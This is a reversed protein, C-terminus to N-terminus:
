RRRAKELEAEKRRHFEESPMNAWDLTGGVQGGGAGEAGASNRQAETNTRQALWQQRKTEERQHSWQMASEFTARPHTMLYTKVDDRDAQPFQEKLSAFGDKFAIEALLTGQQRVQQQLAATPDDEYSTEPEDYGPYEPQLHQQEAATLYEEVSEYGLAKAKQNAASWRENVEQFREYPVYQSQRQGAGNVDAQAEPSGVGGGETQPGVASGGEAPPSGALAETEFSMAQFHDM